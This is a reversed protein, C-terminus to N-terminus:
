GAEALPLDSFPNRTSGAEVVQPKAQRAVSLLVGVAILMFLLSSGGYSIFPLALGKNPLTATVVGINIFAQVAILATIGVALLTGFVDSAHLAIWMGAVLVGMFGLILGLGGVFGLEEGIVSFIFDTHHEAIWGMKQRGEGLGKGALGGAGIALQAQWQQAGRDRRTEELNLWSHIRESRNSNTAVFAGVVTLLIVAPLVLYRARAGASLLVIGCVCTLLLTTGVDPGKFVLSLVVGAAACPIVVGHLFSKMRHSFREGYWALFIILALKAMESPQFQYGGKVIWRRAGNVPKEFVLVYALLLVTIGMLVPWWKKLLRYDFCAAAVAAPVALICWKLQAMLFRAGEVPAGASSNSASFLMTLGLALLGTVCFVLLTTAYRM